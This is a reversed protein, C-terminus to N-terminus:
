ERGPLTQYHCGPQPRSVQSGKKVTYQTDVLQHGQCRYLLYTAPKVAILDIYIEPFIHGGSNNVGPMFKGTGVVGTTLKGGTYNIGTTCRSSRIDERIKRSFFRFQLAPIM